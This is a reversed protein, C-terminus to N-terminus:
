ISSKSMPSSEDDPSESSSTMWIPADPVDATPLYDMEYRKEADGCEKTLHSGM